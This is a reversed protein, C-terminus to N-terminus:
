NLAGSFGLIPSDFNYHNEFLPFSVELVPIGLENLDRSEISSGICLDIHSEKVSIKFQERNCNCLIIPKYLLLSNKLIIENVKEKINENSKNYSAIIVPEMGLELVFSLLGPLTQFDSIIAVKKGNTIHLTTQIKPIIDSLKEKIFNQASLLNGTAEGIKTIFEVTKEIGIPLECIINDQKIIESLYSECSKAYPFLVNYRAETYNELESYKGGSLFISNAELGINEVIYKLERINSHDDDEYRTFFYGIINIKNKDKDKKNCQSNGLAVVLDKLTGSYGDYFDGKFGPSNIPIIKVNKSIERAPLALNYDMGIIEPSCSTILFLVKENYRLLTDEILKKLKEETGFIVDKDVINTTLTPKFNNSNDHMSWVYLIRRQCGSPTHLIVASDKIAYAVCYSGFFYCYSVASDINECGLNSKM